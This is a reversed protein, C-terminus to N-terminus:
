QSQARPHVRRVETVGQTATHTFQSDFRERKPSNTRHPVKRGRRLPAIERVPRFTGFHLSFPSWAQGRAHRSPFAPEGPLPAM